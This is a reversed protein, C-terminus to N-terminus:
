DHLIISRLSQKRYQQPSMNTHQKFCRIFYQPSNFGCSDSISEVSASTRSLLDRAHAIRLNVIYSHPSSGTFKKFLRSFHYTSLGVSKALDDVSFQETFHKEMYNLAMNISDNQLDNASLHQTLLECLISHIEASILFENTFPDSAYTILKFLATEIPLSNEPTFYNGHKRTLLDYFESSHDGDFHFYRFSARGLAHYYHAKHTDLLVIDHQKAVFHKDGVTFEMEGSEILIFLFYDYAGRDIKYASNVYFHGIHPAYYLLKKAHESPIHMYIRSAPLIGTNYEPIQQNLGASNITDYDM